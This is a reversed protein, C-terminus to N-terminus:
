VIIQKLKRYFTGRSLGSSSIAELCTIEKRKYKNATEAFLLSYMSPIPVHRFQLMDVVLLTFKTNFLLRRQSFSLYALYYALNLCTLIECIM